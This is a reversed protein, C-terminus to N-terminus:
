CGSFSNWGGGGIAKDLGHDFEHNGVTSVVMGMEKFAKMVPIADTLTSLESIPNTSFYLDGGGIVVKGDPNNSRIEDINRALVAAVPHNDRDILAGHFDPIQIIDLQKNGGAAAFTRSVPVSQFM